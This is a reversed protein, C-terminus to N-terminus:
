DKLLKELTKLSKKIKNHITAVSLGTKGAIDCLKMDYIFRNEIITRDPEPLTQVATNIDIKEEFVPISYDEAPLEDELHAVCEEKACKLKGDKQRAGEKENIKLAINKAIKCLYGYGNKTDDYKDISKYLKIYTESIVDDIYRKDFLYKHAIYEVYGSTAHYFEDFCDDGLKLRKLYKDVTKRRVEKEVEKLDM